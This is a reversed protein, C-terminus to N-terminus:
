RLHTFPRNQRLDTQTVSVSGVIGDQNGTIMEAMYWCTRLSWTAASSVRSHSFQRACILCNASSRAIPALGETPATCGGDRICDCQM